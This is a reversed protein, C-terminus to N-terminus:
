RDDNHRHRRTTWLAGHTEGSSTTHQGVVEGRNNSQM